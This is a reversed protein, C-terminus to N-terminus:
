LHFGIKSFALDHDNEQFSSRFADFDIPPTGSHSIPPDLTPGPDYYAHLVSPFFARPTSFGTGFSNPFVARRSAGSAASAMREGMILGGVLLIILLSFLITKKFQKLVM